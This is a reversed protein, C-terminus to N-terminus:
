TIDSEAHVVQIYHFMNAGLSHLKIGMCLTNYTPALRDTDLQGVTYHDSNEFHSLIAAHM